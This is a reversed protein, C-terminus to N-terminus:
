WAPAIHVPDPSADRAPDRFAPAAPQREITSGRAVRSSIGRERDNLHRPRPASCQASQAWINLRDEAATAVVVGLL